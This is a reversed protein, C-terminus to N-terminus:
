LSDQCSKSCQHHEISYKQPYVIVQQQLKQLKGFRDNETKCYDLIAVILGLLIIIVTILGSRKQFQNTKLISENLKRTHEREEIKWNENDIRMKELGTYGDLFIFHRGKITPWYLSKYIKEDIYGQKILEEFLSNIEGDTLKFNDKLESKLKKYFDSENGSTDPANDFNVKPKDYESIISQLTYDLSEFYKKNM